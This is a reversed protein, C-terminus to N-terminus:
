KKLKLTLQMTKTKGLEADVDLSKVSYIILAYFYAAFDEAENAFVFDGDANKKSSKAISLLMESNSLSIVENTEVENQANTVTISKKSADYVYKGTESVGEETSVFTGDAKFELTSEGISVASGNNLKKIEAVTAETTNIDTKIGIATFTWKGVISFASPLAEKDKNCSVLFSVIFSLIIIKKFNKM